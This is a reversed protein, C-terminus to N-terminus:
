QTYKHAYYRMGVFQGNGIPMLYNETYWVAHKGQKDASMITVVGVFM